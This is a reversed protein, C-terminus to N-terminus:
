KKKYLQLCGRPTKLHLRKDMLNGDSPLNSGATRVPRYWYQVKIKEHSKTLVKARGRQMWLILQRLRLMSSSWMLM